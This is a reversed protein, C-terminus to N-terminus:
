FSGWILKSTLKPTESSKIIKILKAVLFATRTAQDFSYVLLVQKLIIRVLIYCGQLFFNKLGLYINTGARSGCMKQIIKCCANNSTLKSSNRIIEHNTYIQKYGLIISDTEPSKTM